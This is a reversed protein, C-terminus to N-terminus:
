LSKIMISQCTVGEGMYNLPTIWYFWDGAGPIDTYTTATVIALEKATAFDNHSSRSVKYGKVNTHTFLNLPKEWRLKVHTREVNRAIFQHVNQVMELRGQPTKAKKLTFGSTVLVAAREGDPVNLLVTNECYEAISWLMNYMKLASLELNVHDLHSGRNGQQGWKAIADRLENIGANLTALGPSPSVFHINGNLYEFIREALALIASFQKVKLKLVITTKM